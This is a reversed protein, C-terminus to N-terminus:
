GRLSSELPDFVGEHRFRFGIPNWRVKTTPSLRDRRQSLLQMKPLSNSDAAYGHIERRGLGFAIPRRRWHNLKLLGQLAGPTSARLDNLNEQPEPVPEQSSAGFQHCSAPASREVELAPM